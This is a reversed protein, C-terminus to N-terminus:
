PGGTPNHHPEARPGRSPSMSMTRGTFQNESAFDTKQKSTARNRLAKANATAELGRLATRLYIECIGRLIQPQNASIRPQKAVTERRNQALERM